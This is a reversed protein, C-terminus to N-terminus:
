IRFARNVLYRDHCARRFVPRSIDVPFTKATFLTIRNSNGAFTATLLKFLKKEEITSKDARQVVLSHANGKKLTFHHSADVGPNLKPIFFLFTASIFLYVAVLLLAGPKKFNFAQKHSCM